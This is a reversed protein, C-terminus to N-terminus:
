TKMINELLGALLNVPLGLVNFYCGEIGTIFASAKGQIAYAGAKDMPEGTEIYAQIKEGDLPQMHVATKRYDEYRKQTRMDLVCVGTYVEHAQGQLATLMRRADAENQPKGLREDGLVVMTDAGIIVADPYQAGIAEAKRRAVLIAQRGPSLEQGVNEDVDPSQATYTYGLLSLYERRRPSQSALVLKRSQM